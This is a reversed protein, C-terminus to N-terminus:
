LREAAREIESLCSAVLADSVPGGQGTMSSAIGMAAGRKFADRDGPDVDALVQAVLEVAGGEKVIYTAYSETPNDIREQLCNATRVRAVEDMIPEEISGEMWGRYYAQRNKATAQLFAVDRALEDVDVEVGLRELVIMLLEELVRAHGYRIDAFVKLPEEDVGQINRRFFYESQLDTVTVSWGTQKDVTGMLWSLERWNSIDLPEFPIPEDPPRPDPYEVDVPPDTSVEREYDERLLNDLRSRRGGIEGVLARNDDIASDQGSGAYRVVLEDEMMRVFEIAKPRPLWPSRPHDPDGNEARSYKPYKEIQVKIHDRLNRMQRDPIGYEDMAYSAMETTGWKDRSDLVERSLRKM